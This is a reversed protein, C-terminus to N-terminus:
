PPSTRKKSKWYMKHCKIKDIDSCVVKQCISFMSSFSITCEINKASNYCASGYKTSMIVLLRWHAIFGFSSISSLIHAHSKVNRNYMATEKSVVAKSKYTTVTFLLKAQIEPLWFHRTGACSLWFHRPQPRMCSHPNWLHM